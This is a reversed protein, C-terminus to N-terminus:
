LDALVARRTLGPELNYSLRESFKSFVSKRIKEGRNYSLKLFGGDWGILGLLECGFQHNKYVKM